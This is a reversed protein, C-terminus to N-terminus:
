NEIQLHLLRWSGLGDGGMYQMDAYYNTRVIAGFGNPADVYSFVRHKCDGLYQVKTASWPYNANPINKLKAKILKQAVVFARSSDKCYKGQEKPPQTALTEKQQATQKARQETMQKQREATEKARQEALRKQQADYAQKQEPTLKAYAEARAQAQQRERELQAQRQQQQKQKNDQYSCTALIALFAIIFLFILPTRKKKITVPIAVGCHSCYKAQNSIKNGCAKCKIQAM